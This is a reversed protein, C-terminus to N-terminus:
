GYRGEYRGWTRGKALASLFSVSLTGHDEYLGQTEECELIRDILEPTEGETRKGSVRASNGNVSNAGVTPSDGFGQLIGDIGATRLGNSDGDTMCSGNWDGNGNLVRDNAGTHYTTYTTRLQCHVSRGVRVATYAVGCQV